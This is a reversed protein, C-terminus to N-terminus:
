IIQKIDFEFLCKLDKIAQWFSFQVQVQTQYKFIQLLMYIIQGQTNHVIQTAVHGELSM